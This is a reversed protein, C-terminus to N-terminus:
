HGIEHALTTRIISLTSQRTAQAEVEISGQFLTIRDPYLPPLEGRETQPVGEYLGLLTGRRVGNERLQEATPRREVLVATNAVLMRFENPLSGFARTVLGTFARRTM